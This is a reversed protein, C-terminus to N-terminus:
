TVMDLIDPDSALEKFFTKPPETCSSEYIQEYTGYNCFLDFINKCSKPMETTSVPPNIVLVMCATGKAVEPVNLLLCDTYDSYLLIYTRPHWEETTKSANMANYTERTKIGTGDVVETKYFQGHYKMEEWKEGVLYHSTYNMGDEFLDHIRFLTCRRSSTVGRRFNVGWLWFESGMSFARYIDQDAVYSLYKDETVEAGAVFNCFLLFLVLPLKSKSTYFCM